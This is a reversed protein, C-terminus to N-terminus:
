SPRNHPAPKLGAEVWEDHPFRELFIDLDYEIAIRRRTVDQFDNGSVRPKVREKKIAHRMGNPIAAKFADGAKNAVGPPKKGADLNMGACLDAPSEENVVPHSDDDAFGTLDAVVDSNILANSQPAGTQSFFFAMGGHLVPDNDTRSSSHKARHGNPVVASNARSRHHDGSNGRM